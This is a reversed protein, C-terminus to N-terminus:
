QEVATSREEEAGTWDGSGGFPFLSVALDTAVIFWGRYSGGPRSWRILRPGRGHLHERHPVAHLQCRLGGLSEECRSRGVDPHGLLRAFALVTGRPGAPCLEADEAPLPETSPDVPRLEVVRREGLALLTAHADAQALGLAAGVRRVADAVSILGHPHEGAALAALVLTEAALKNAVLDTDHEGNSLVGSPSRPRPELEVGARAAVESTPGADEDDLPKPRPASRTAVAFGMGTVAPFAKKHEAVDEATIHPDPELAAALFNRATAIAECRVRILAEVGDLLSLVLAREGDPLARWCARTARERETRM